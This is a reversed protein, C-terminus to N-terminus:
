TSTERLARVAMRQVAPKENFLTCIECECWPECWTQQYDLMDVLSRAQGKENYERYRPECMKLDEAWADFEDVMIEPENPKM